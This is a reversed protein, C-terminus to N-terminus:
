DGQTVILYPNIPAHDLPFHSQEIYDGFKSVARAQDEWRRTAARNAGIRERFKEPLKVDIGHRVPETRRKPIPRRLTGVRRALDALEGQRVDVGIPHLGGITAGVEELLAPNQHFLPRAENPSRGFAALILSLM